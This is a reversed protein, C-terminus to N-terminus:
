FGKHIYKNLSLMKKEKISTGLLESMSIEVSNRSSDPSGETTSFKVYGENTWRVYTYGQRIYSYSVNLSQLKNVVQDWYIKCEKIMIHRNKLQDKHTIM